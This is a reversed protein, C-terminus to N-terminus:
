ERSMTFHVNGALTAATDSCRESCRDFARRALTDSLGLTWGLSVREDQESGVCLTDSLPDRVPIIPMSQSRLSVRRWYESRSIGGQESYWHGTQKSQHHPWNSRFAM